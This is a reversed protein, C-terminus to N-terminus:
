KYLSDIETMENLPFFNEIPVRMAYYDLQYRKTQGILKDWDWPILSIATQSDLIWDKTEQIDITAKVGDLVKNDTRRIVETTAILNINGQNLVRFQFYFQNQFQNITM